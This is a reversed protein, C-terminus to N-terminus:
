YTLYQMSVLGTVFQTFSKLLSCPPFTLLLAGLPSKIDFETREGAAGMPSRIGRRIFGTHYGRAALDRCVPYGATSEVMRKVPRQLRKQALM